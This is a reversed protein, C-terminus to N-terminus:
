HVHQITTIPGAFDLAHVRTELVKSNRCCLPHVTLATLIFVVFPPVDTALVTTFLKPNESGRPPPAYASPPRDLRGRAVAPQACCGTTLGRAGGGRGGRQPSGLRGHPEPATHSQPVGSVRRTVVTLKERGEQQVPILHYCSSCPATLLSWSEFRKGRSIGSTVKICCYGDPGSATCGPKSRDGATTGIRRHPLGSEQEKRCTCFYLGPWLCLPSEM